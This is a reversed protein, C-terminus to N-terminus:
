NDPSWEMESESTAANDFVVCRFGANDNEGKEEEIESDSMPARDFICRFSANDGELDLKGVERCL